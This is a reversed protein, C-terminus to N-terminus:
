KIGTTAKQQPNTPIIPRDPYTKDLYLAIATSDAIVKNGDKLVPVKGQGSMRFLDLQGMGPTVEIKRYALGKYDLVLRVKESFHSLEFQYLELM